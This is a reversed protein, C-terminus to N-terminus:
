QRTRQSDIVYVGRLQVQKRDLNLEISNPEGRGLSPSLSPTLLRACQQLERLRESIRMWLQTGSNRLLIEFSSMRGNSPSASPPPTRWAAVLARRATQKAALLYVKTCGRAGRAGNFPQFVKPEQRVFERQQEPTLKVMGCAEHPGLSAFIKGRVRFDPHDM